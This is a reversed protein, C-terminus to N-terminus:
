SGLARALLSGRSHTGTKAFVSKLHDQVTHVSLYMRGAVQRTDGGEALCGLLEHERETLGISLAFLLLRDGATSEEITVAIDRAAEPGAGDLRAARVTVWPGDTLHVRATPPHDDVGAEVALLKAAVNYASAPVPPGGDDRPLLRRLSPETAPTARLVELRPSLLLVLPSELSRPRPAAAAFTAAQAARLSGTIPPVLSRLFASEAPRFFRGGTRWVELFSWCGYRDSFAVSAVDSVGYRSLLDRWVLSRSLEGETAQRLLAVPDPALATWRNLATLYRLRILEPLEPLCPVDALPATGVTTVPDTLLWAYADFGVARDIEALLQLRLLREDVPSSCIREIRDRAAAPSGPV